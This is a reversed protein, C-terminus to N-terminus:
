YKSLKSKSFLTNMLLINESVEKESFLFNYSVTFRTFKGGSGVDTEVNTKKKVMNRCENVLVNYLSLSRRNSEDCTHNDLINILAQCIKETTNCQHCFFLIYCLSDDRNMGHKYCYMYYVHLLCSWFAMKDGAENFVALKYKFFSDDNIQFKENVLQFRYRSFFRGLYDYDSYLSHSMLNVLENRGAHSKHKSSAYNEIHSMMTCRKNLCQRTYIVICLSLGNPFEQLYESSIIVKLEEPPIICSISITKDDSPDIPNSIDWHPLLKNNVIVSAAPICFDNLDDERTIQM